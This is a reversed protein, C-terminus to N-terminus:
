NTLLQYAIKHTLNGSILPSCLLRVNGSLVDMSYNAVANGIFITGSGTYKVNSADVTPLVSLTISQKDSTTSNISEVIIQGQNFSNAPTEFLVQTSNGTTNAFAYFYSTNGLQAFNNNIKEFATRLPDGTGDNATAGINIVELTSM